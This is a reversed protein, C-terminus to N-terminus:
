RLQRQLSSRVQYVFSPAPPEPLSTLGPAETGCSHDRALLCVQLQSATPARTQRMSYTRHMITTIIRRTSSQSLSATSCFLSRPPHAPFPSHPYIHNLPSSCSSSCPTSSLSLYIWVPGIPITKHSASLTPPSTASFLITVNPPLM